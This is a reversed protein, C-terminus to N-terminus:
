EALHKVMRVMRCSVSLSTHFSGSFLTNGSDSRCTQPDSRGTGPETMSPGDSWRELSLGQPGHHLPFLQLSPTLRHPDEGRGQGWSARGAQLIFTWSVGLGPGTLLHHTVSVRHLNKIPRTRCFLSLDLTLSRQTEELRFIYNKFGKLRLSFPYGKPSREHLNIESDNLM